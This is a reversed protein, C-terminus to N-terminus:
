KINMIKIVARSIEVTNDDIPYAILYTYYSGSAVTPMPEFKVRHIGKNTFKKDFVEKTDPTEIKGIEKGTLDYVAITM